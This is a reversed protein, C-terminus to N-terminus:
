TFSQAAKWIVYGVAALGLAGRLRASGAKTADIKPSESTTMDQDPKLSTVAPPEGAHILMGGFMGILVIVYAIGTVQILLTALKAAFTTPEAEGQTVLTILGFRLSDVLRDNWEGQIKTFGGFQDSVFFYFGASVAWTTLATGIVIKADALLNKRFRHHPGAWARFVSASYAGEAAVAVMCACLLAGIGFGLWKQSTAMHDILLDGGLALTLASLPAFAYLIWIRRLMALMLHRVPRGTSRARRGARYLRYSKVGFPLFGGNTRDYIPGYTDLDVSTGAPIQDLEDRFRIGHEGIWYVTRVVSYCRIMVVALFTGLVVTLTTSNM